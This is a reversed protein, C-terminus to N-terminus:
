FLEELEAVTGIAADSDVISEEDVSKSETAIDPKKSPLLPLVRADAAELLSSLDLKHSVNVRVQEGYVHPILRSATWKINDSTLRAVNVDVLTECGKAISLLSDVHMHICHERAQQLRKGFIPDKISYESLARADLKAEAFASHPSFGKYILDLVQEQQELTLNQYAPYGM